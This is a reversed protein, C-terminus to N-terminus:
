FLGDSGEVKYAFETLVGFEVLKDGYGPVALKTPGDLSIHDVELDSIATNLRCCWNVLRTDRYILGQEFLRIFAEMVANSRVKSFFFFSTL